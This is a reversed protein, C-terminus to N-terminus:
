SWFRWGGFGILYNFTIHLWWFFYTQPARATIQAQLIKTNINVVIAGSSHMSQMKFRCSFESIMWLIGFFHFRERNADFFERILRRSFGVSRASFLRFCFDFSRGPFTFFKSTPLANLTFISFNISSSKWKSSDIEFTGCIFFASTWSTWFCITRNIKTRSWCSAFVSM